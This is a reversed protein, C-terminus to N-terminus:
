RYHASRAVRGLRSMMEIFAPWWEPRVYGHVRVEGGGQPGKPKKLVLLLYGYTDEDALSMAAETRASAAEDDHVLPSETDRVVLECPPISMETHQRRQEIGKLIETEARSRVKRLVDRFPVLM